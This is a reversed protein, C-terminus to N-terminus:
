LNRALDAVVEAPRGMRLWDLPAVPRREDPDLYLDPHPTSFWRQVEVPHLDRPLAPLVEAMGPIPKRGIFQFKPVRWSKGEKIGYLSRPDGGLRQRVRSPNVGM